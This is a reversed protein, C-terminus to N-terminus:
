ENKLKWDYNIDKSDFPKRKIEDPDHAMTSCNAVIAKKNAIGKFGNWVKVPVKVLLRNEEGIFLEMLNGKTPSNERDDYLVMKIMGSIVSYNLIMKEHWHWAKVVGPYVNSFYIEGFKEFIEDDSRLMHYIMGREDPITRLKNIEVGEIYDGKVGDLKELDKGKFVM